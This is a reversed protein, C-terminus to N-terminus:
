DWCLCFPKGAPDAYVRWNVGDAYLSTAGLKLVAVEAADVDEVTVDLHFQQPFAPDPWRPPRYDSVQQFLVPQAGDEGIMAMGEGQYTVPKDLLAAYFTSLQDADPCDLMVGTLTTEPEAAFRCLDFPHGAPDALTYWNENTRLLEAGLEIARASGADLDPVRFDLHAQQPYAPDPWRPPVLDPSLQVAVRWGDGTEMTIWEEDAYRRTWGGLATYFAALRGIDPADLVVTRLRGIM